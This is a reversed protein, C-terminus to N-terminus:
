AHHRRWTWHRGQHEQVLQPTGSILFRLLELGPPLLAVSASDPSSSAQCHLTFHARAPDARGVRLAWAYETMPSDHFSAYAEPLPADYHVVLVEPHGDDLLSIAEMLGAQGSMVGAAVSTANQTVAKTISYQAGIGNHVSIAFAAPSIPEGQAHQSLMELSRHADGYRSAWVVPLTELVVGQSAETAVAVAMKGLPSLRRRQMAPIDSLLPNVQGVPLWPDSSWTIWENTTSIGAALASWTNVALSLYM